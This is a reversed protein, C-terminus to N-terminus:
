LRPELRAAMLCLNFIFSRKQTQGCGHGVMDIPFFTRGPAEAIEGFSATTPIDHKM